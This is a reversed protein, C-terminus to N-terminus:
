AAVYALSGRMVDSTTWTFPNTANVQGFGHGHLACATSSIQILVGLFTSTASADRYAAAGIQDTTTAATVPLNTISVTGTVSTSSGHTLIFSCYVMDGSRIYNGALTGNGVTLNGFTPTWSTEPRYITRWAAGTYYTISNTDEQYTIMGEDLVGSLASDRTSTDAFTMLTQRMLYGDVQDATLVNGATFDNFGSGM